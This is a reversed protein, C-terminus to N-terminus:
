RWEIIELITPQTSQIYLTSSFDLNQAYLSVGKKLTFYTTGSTGVSFSLKIVADNERARVNFSKTSTSFTHSYETNAVALNVNFVEATTTAEITAKARVVGSINPAM